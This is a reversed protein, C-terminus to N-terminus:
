DGRDYSSRLIGAIRGGAEAEGFIMSGEKEPSFTRIAAMIKGRDSGVRVNWGDGVAEVWETPDRLTICPVGAPLGGEAVGGPDALIKGAHGMAQLMDLYGPPATAIGSSM